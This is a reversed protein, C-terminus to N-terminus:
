YVRISGDGFLTPDLDKLGKSITELLKSSNIIQTVKDENLETPTNDFKVSIGIDLSLSKKTESNDGYKKNDLNTGIGIKGDSGVVVSDQPLPEIIADKVKVIGDSGGTDIKGSIQNVLDTFKDKLAKPIEDTFSGFFDMIQKYKDSGLNEFKDAYEDIEKQNFLKGPNKIVNTMFDNIDKFTNQQQKMDTGFINLASAAKTAVDLSKNMSKIMDAGSSSGGLAYANTNLIEELVGLMRTEVDLQSKALEEMTQEKQVSFFRESLKKDESLVRIAEDMGLEEGDITLKYEGGEGMQAMNRILNEQEKNFANTPFKIKSMKDNMEQTGIAMKALTDYAIGSESAIERLTFMGEKSIEFRGSEKNLSVFQSTMKAIEDQLEKPNNQALNMLRFPDLLQGQAVGLRQLASTFEIAKEPNLLKEALSFTESMKVRLNVSQAAMEAFGKIGNQFGFKNINSMNEMAASSVEKANAGIERASNVVKEMEKSIQITSFGIDKFNSVLTATQIQTVKTTEFLSTMNEKSLVINKGLTESTSQQIERINEMTGGLRAIEQFSVTLSKNISEINERGVGYSKALTMSAKDLEIVKKTIHDPDFSQKYAGMISDLGSGVQSFLKSFIDSM